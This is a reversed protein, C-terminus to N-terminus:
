LAVPRRLARRALRLGAAVLLVAAAFGTVALAVRGYRTSRVVLDKPQGLPAGDRDLLQAKVVFRGSTSTSANVQVPLSTRAPVELVETQARSLRADSPARLQLAVTVAQDLENLVAVEVRGNNSTLLVSGTLVSVKSRLAEVDQQALTAMRAGDARRDRWASSEARLWARQLRGRLAQAADTGGLVVAGTLQTADARVRTVQAVQGATLAPSRADPQALTATRDPAYTPVAAGACSEQRTAVAALEVPCMWPVRGTDAVAAGAVAPDVTGRRPATVVITRGRSPLEASIMATEVLWRQEALRPDQPRAPVLLDSLGRDVVLGAVDGSTSSAPLGVRSGPTSRAGSQPPSVADDGLVVAQTSGTALADFAADSLRGEPPFSVTQLPDRGLLERAVTVGYTRATAVDAALDASGRTLAVVDPDAYPLALVGGAAVAARLSALWAAAPASAPQQRVGAGDVVPHDGTMAQLSFLLDPDVAYTVPVPRCTPADPPSPSSGPAPEPGPPCTGSEGSRAAALSSGLRGSGAVATALSDDVLVGLPTLRPQDVLPWLWAIRLPDVATTGFWPLYTAVQGLQERVTVSGRLGRVEVQLPYVGDSGLRLDDVRVRLDLPVAAGPALDPLPALSRPQGYAPATADAQRLDGRTALRGGVRVRLQLDHLPQTGTNSVTGLVQLDDGPAPARPRLDSINFTVPAAVAGSPSPTPTTAARAPAAAGPPLLGGLLGGLLLALAATATRLAGTARRTRHPRPSV